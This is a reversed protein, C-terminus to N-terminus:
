LFQIPNLRKGTLNKLNSEALEDAIQSTPKHEKESKEFVIALTDYIHNVKELSIKPDYGGVEYEAAANIIGGSNIIYDPAYLINRELLSFGDEPNLLQNNAAGAVALCRLRPISTANLIGGMACPCLIECPVDIFNEPSVSKAGHLYVHDKLKGADIDTLILDAGEWFLLDALKSGVSGLGQVAITRGKLSRKGWLKQAVAHLGVYVGWATFRSPDGSSYDSPLAAVYPTKKKLISMDEMSTGIDEAAIYRGKLSNIVEAFAHLLAESKDKRPDAIIVSKGGGLGNAIVASKYTMGKALRLADNLADQASTYPYVRIGGLAPGLSTNHIAIFCHLGSAEDIGEIVEEYGPIPRKKILVM